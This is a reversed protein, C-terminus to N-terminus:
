GKKRLLVTTVVFQEAQGGGRRVKEMQCDRVDSCGKEEQKGKRLEQKGTAQVPIM